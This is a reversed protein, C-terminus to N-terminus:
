VKMKGQLFGELFSSANKGGAVQVHTPAVKVGKEVYRTLIRHRQTHHGLLNTIEANAKFLLLDIMQKDTVQVNKRFEGAVVKRLGAVNTVDQLQYNRVVWPLERCVQRFLSRSRFQAEALTQSIRPAAANAFASSM